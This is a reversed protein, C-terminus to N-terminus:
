RVPQVSERIVLRTSLVVHTHTDGGGAEHDLALRVASRGIEEYPIRVTTLAPSLDAAFPVDDFGVLSVQEPVSIGEERLVALAGTAMIDTCAFVATFRLDSRLAERVLRYGSTRSFLGYVDLRPDHRVGHARLADLYGEHRQIVTSNKQEGGLFLVREHGAQLLHSAASFAGGRNDYDVISVPTGPDLPQRSCLVLRSGAADLSHAYQAMRERYAKDAVAGGVMIVGSAQQARLLDIVASERAQDGHTTCVLCLRGHDAAEREVAAIIENFSPGTVDNIVFAIPRATKGSLAQAHVNVVFDLERVADLVRAKTARAVPYNDALV